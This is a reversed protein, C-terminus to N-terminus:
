ANLQNRRRVWMFGMIGIALLSLPGPEPVNTNRGDRVLIDLHSLGPIQGGNNKFSITYSGNNSTDLLIDDFFYAADVNGGNLVGLLDFTAPLNLPASPNTDTLNLTFTNNGLASLAFQIGNFINNGETSGGGADDKVVGTWGGGFFNSSNNNVYTQMTALSSSGSDFTGFCNTASISNIVM